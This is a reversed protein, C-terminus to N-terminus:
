RARRTALRAQVAASQLERLADSAVWRAAGAGAGRGAKVASRRIRHGCAIASRNLRRNRKGIQRLAWNVAKKVMNREDFAAEEVLPLCALFRDDPAQKDHVALSAMLAFGARRVFEEDRRAWSRAKSWAFPTRDFLRGCTSDCIAWSDFDAAWREMQTSSVLRPDDISAAIARAELVGTRWLRGALAHDTGLGRAIREIVPTPVGYARVARIGYRAMGEVNRPDAHAQLQALVEDTKRKLDLIM